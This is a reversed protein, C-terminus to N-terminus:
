GTVSTAFAKETDASTLDDPIRRVKGDCQM